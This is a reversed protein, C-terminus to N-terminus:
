IVLQKLDKGEVNIIDIEATQYRSQINDSEYFSKPMNTNLGLAKLRQDEAKTVIVAHSYKSLINLIDDATKSPLDLIFQKILNRPVIHEHRLDKFNKNKLGQNQKQYQLIALKSWYPQGLYKVRKNNDNDETATWLLRDLVLEVLFEDSSSAFIQELFVAIRRKLKLNHNKIILVM